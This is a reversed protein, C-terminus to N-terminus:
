FNFLRRSIVIGIVPQVIGNAGIGYGAGVGLSFKRNNRKISKNLNIALRINERSVTNFSTLLLKGTSDQSKIVSQLDVIKSEYLAELLEIKRDKMESDERIVAIINGLSDSASVYGATDKNAKAIDQDSALKSAKAITATLQRKYQNAQSRLSDLQRDKKALVLSVSDRFKKGIQQDAQVKKIETPAVPQVASKNCSIKDLLLWLLLLIFITMVFSSVM